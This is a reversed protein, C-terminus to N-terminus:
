RMLYPVSLMAATLGVGAATLVTARGVREGAAYLRTDTRKADYAKLEHDLPGLPDVSKMALGASNWMGRWFDVANGRPTLRSIQSIDLANAEAELESALPGGGFTSRLGAARNRLAGIYSSFINDQPQALPYTTQM